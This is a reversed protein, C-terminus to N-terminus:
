WANQRGDLSRVGFLHRRNRQEAFVTALCPTSGRMFDDNRRLVRPSDLLHVHLNDMKDTFDDFM